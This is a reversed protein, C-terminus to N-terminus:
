LGEHWNRGIEAFDFFDVNTDGTIDAGSCAPIDACDFSLWRSVLELLDPMGAEGTYYDHTMLALESLQISSADGNNATINLRYYRYAANNTIAYQKTLYRSAFTENTRTDLTTWTTGNDSGLFQWNRPDRGPVDNASSLDYRVVTWANSLGFDYQLWGTSGGNENFWKTATSGDFANSAPEAVKEKSATAVGGAARNVLRGAITSRVLAIHSFVANCLTGDNVSCVALGMKVSTAMNITSSGLNTWANGDSSHYATFVNGRRELRLWHPVTLGPTEAFGTTSGGTSSRGQLAVGNVPSMFAIIQKSNSDLTERIMLGAKAWSATNQMSEVKATISGDGNLTKYVYRFADANNWIDSGSGRVLLTEDAQVASGAASVNGIDQSLWTTSGVPLLAPVPESDPSTHTGIQSAVTYYYVTGPVAASDTWTTANLNAAMTTYPGAISTARRVTFTAAADSSTWSLVVNPDAGAATVSTPATPLIISTPGIKFGIATQFPMSAPCTIRLADADQTWALAGAHGLLNVSTIPEALTGDSTGLSTIVLETGAAPVTMCYAYLYGDNGVTFRFDEPYFVFNQQSSGIHGAPLSRSGEGFRLWAKSGYIGSGNIGMWNGVQQLMTTCASELSGDPKMPINVAYCGDRSVCELLYLIIGKSSYTFGPAWYWDGVANEAIWAQDTKIGAPYSGEITTVVGKCPPHFKTISFTDQQGHQRITRNFYSALLRQDADCKYGTASLYGDFPQKSNGDTYIFDPDYKEIADLIRLAWRTTYWRCYEDHNTLIGSSPCWSDQDWGIYERLDIGYLLRPDFGEWWKGVGDALTLHGDYPVGALDGSTDSRFATQWWWWTYEHHFTVGYHMGASKVATSWEGILDRHPGINVSNWPQYKSNWLDYNDHHVGQIMLFRAGANHFLQVYATPNLQTPNWAHLVDMYGTESPHGFDRIHNDYAWQGQMYLRRAYWDGSMGLAQPGFHVWFGFKADRLWVPYAPANQNISSWTPEFPGTSMPFDMHVEPVEAPNGMSVTKIPQPSPVTPIPAPPPLIPDEVAVLSGTLGWISLCIVVVKKCLFLNMKMSVMGKMEFIGTQVPFISSETEIDRFGGFILQLTVQHKSLM